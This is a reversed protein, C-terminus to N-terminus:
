GNNERAQKEVDRFEHQAELIVFVDTKVTAIHMFPSSLLINDLFYQLFVLVSCSRSYAIKKKIERYTAWM